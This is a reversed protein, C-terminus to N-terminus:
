HRVQAALNDWVVVDGEFLTFTAKLEDRDRDTGLRDQAVLNPHKIAPM